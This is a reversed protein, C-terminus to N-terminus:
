LFFTTEKLKQVVGAVKKKVILSSEDLVANQQRYVRNYQEEVHDCFEEQFCFYLFRGLSSVYFDCRARPETIIIIKQQIGCHLVLWAPLERHTIM